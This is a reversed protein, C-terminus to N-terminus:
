PCAGSAPRNLAHWDEVSALWTKRFQFIQALQRKVLLGHAVHGLPGFPLVYHVEDRIITEDGDAEFTHTHHWLSYPGKLQVDVFRHPPAYESICTTWRMPVGNLSVVYDIIAGVHMPIPRPTLLKFGLFDPTLRELNEPRSFFLFVEDLPASLRQEQKLVYPTM